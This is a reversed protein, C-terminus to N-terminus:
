LTQTRNDRIEEEEINLKKKVTELVKEAVNDSAMGMGGHRETYTQIFKEKIEPVQAPNTYEEGYKQQITEKAKQRNNYNADGYKKLRTQKAKERAKKTNGLKGGCSRSCTKRRKDKPKFIKWMNCM